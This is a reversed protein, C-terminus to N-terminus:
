HRVGTCLPRPAGASQIVMPLTSPTTRKLSQGCPLAVLGLRFTSYAKYGSGTRSTSLYLSLEM